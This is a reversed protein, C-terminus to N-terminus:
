RETADSLGYTDNEEEEHAAKTQEVDEMAYAPQPEGGATSPVLNSTDIGQDSTSSSDTGVASIPGPEIAPQTETTFTLKSHGVLTDFKLESPTRPLYHRAWDGSLALLIVLLTDPFISDEESRPPDSKGFICDELRMMDLCRSAIMQLQIRLEPSAQLYPVPLSTALSSFMGRCEKRLDLPVNIIILFFVLVQCLGLPFTIDPEREQYTAIKSAILQFIAQIM